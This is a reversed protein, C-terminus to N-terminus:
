THSFKENKDLKILLIISNGHATSGHSLYEFSASIALQSMQSSKLNFLVQQDGHKICFYRTALTRKNDLKPGLLDSIIYTTQLGCPHLGCVSYVIRIEM